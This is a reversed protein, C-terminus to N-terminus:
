IKVRIDNNKVDYRAFLLYKTNKRRFVFHNAEIISM